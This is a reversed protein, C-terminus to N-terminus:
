QASVRLKWSSTSKSKFKHNKFHKITALKIALAARSTTM